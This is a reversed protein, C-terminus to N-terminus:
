HYEAISASLLERLPEVRHCVWLSMVDVAL